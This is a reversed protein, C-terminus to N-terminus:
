HWKCVYVSSYRILGSEHSPMGTCTSVHLARPQCVYGFLVVSSHRAYGGEHRRMWAYVCVFVFVCM